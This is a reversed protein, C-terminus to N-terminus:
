RRRVKWIYYPVHGELYNAHVRDSVNVELLVHGYVAKNFENHHDQLWHYAESIREAGFKMLAQLCKNHTNEMDKLRDLCNRLSMKKQGLLREKESKRNRKNNASVELELIQAKLNDLEDKPPEYPPLNELEAEAAALNEKAKIIRQQCSEEQKRLDEM